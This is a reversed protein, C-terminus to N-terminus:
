CEIFLYIFLYVVIAIFLVISSSNSRMGFMSLLQVDSHQKKGAQM